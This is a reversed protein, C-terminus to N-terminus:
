LTRIKLYLHDYVNLKKQKELYAVNIATIALSRFDIWRNIISTLLFLAISLRIGHFGKGWVQCSLEIKLLFECM